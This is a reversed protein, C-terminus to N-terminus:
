PKCFSVNANTTSTSVGGPGTASVAVTLTYDVDSGVLPVIASAAGPVPTLAVTTDNGGGTVRVSASTANAINVNVTVSCDGPTVAISGITPKAITVPPATTPAATTPPVTTTTSTTTTEPVTTTTAAITTSTTTAEGGPAVVFVTRVGSRSGDDAVVRLEHTGATATWELEAYALDANVELQEDTIVDDGDVTLTLSEIGSSVDVHAQVVVVGPHVSALDAPTDIWVATTADVTDDSRVVALTAAAIGSGAIAVPLAVKWWVM